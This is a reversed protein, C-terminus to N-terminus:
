KQAGGASHRSKNTAFPDCLSLERAYAAYGPQDIRLRELTTTRLHDILDSHTWDFEGATIAVCLIRNLTELDGDRGLLSMLRDHEDTRSREGHILERAAIDIANAAVLSHFGTRGELQPIVERRLFESVIQLLEAATPQGYLESM